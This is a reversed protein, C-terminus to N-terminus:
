PRHSYDYVLVIANSMASKSYKIIADSLLILDILHENLIM